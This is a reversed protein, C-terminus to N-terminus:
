ARNSSSNRFFCLLKDHPERLLQFCNDLGGGGGGGAGGGAADASTATDNIFVM